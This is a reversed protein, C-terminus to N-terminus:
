RSRRLTISWTTTLTGSLLPGRRGPEPAGCTSALVIDVDSSEAPDVCYRAAISVRLTKARGNEFTGGRIPKYTRLGFVASLFYNRLDFLRIDCAAPRREIWPTDVPVHLALKQGLRMLVVGARPLLPNSGRCDNRFEAGVAGCAGTPRQVVDYNRTEGGTLPVVRGWGGRSFAQFEYSGAKGRPAIVKAPRATRFTEDQVGKGQFSCQLDSQELTWAFHQTGTVTAQFRPMRVPASEVSSAALLAAAAVVVLCGVVRHM